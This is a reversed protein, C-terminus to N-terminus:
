KSTVAVLQECEKEMRNREEVEKEMVQRMQNLGSEFVDALEAKKSLAQKQQKLENVQAQLASVSAELKLNSEAVSMQAAGLSSLSSQASAHAASLKSCELSQWVCCLCSEATSLPHPACLQLRWRLLARVKADLARKLRLMENGWEMRERLAQSVQAESLGLVTSPAPAAAAAAAASASASASASALRQWTDAHLPAGSRQLLQVSGLLEDISQAAARLTGPAPAPASASASASASSQANYEAYSSLTRKLM